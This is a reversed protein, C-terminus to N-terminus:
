QAQNFQSIVIEPTLIQPLVVTASNKGAPYFLYLPVGSRGYQKLLASINPDQNTWDGKLYTIGKDKLAQKVSDQGLAVRENVLCTICWSATLNIFVPKGEDRLAKLREPTYAQWDSETNTASTNSATIQNQHALLNVGQYSLGLIAFVLATVVVNALQRKHGSTQRTSDYIWATIAIAILGFLALPVANVGAQQALVWILWVSAAYMPFALAQKMREMWLGPKPLAAHLQPWSSILLYPVALGLGLSIFILWLLFAPQTLAFGLAAGMFPATCPTAVITALVGTFFSGSYGSRNALGSGLNAVEGGLIFVGSLSLGVAFILYAVSIVFYPSQFQFGWGVQVGISKLAILIGALFSFSALVGVTYAVGQLRKELPSLESHKLLALAKISLVPFVCPMLNLVIGGFFAFALATWVNISDDSPVESQTTSLLTNLDSAPNDSANSDAGLEFAHIAKAAGTLSSKPSISIVGKLLEGASPPTEGATLHLTLQHDKVEFNQASAPNLKGQEAPYFYVETKPNQFLDNIQATTLEGPLTVHLLLHGDQRELTQTWNVKRPLAAKANGIMKSNDANITSASQDAVVPLSLQVNASQPICVDNCVLWNVKAQANFTTGVQVTSPVTIKSLLVVKDAYGYNFVSGLQFRQPPQWQLESAIVGSPQTWRVTTPMGTDGPNKWYTHWHEAITQEIAVQLSQGPYVNSTASFLRIEVQETKAHDSFNAADDAAAVPTNFLALGFYAFFAFCFAARWQRLSQSM